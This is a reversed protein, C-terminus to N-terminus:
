FVFELTKKIFFLYIYRFNKKFFKKKLCHPANLQIKIEKNVNVVKSKQTM